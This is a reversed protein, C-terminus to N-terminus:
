GEEEAEDPQPSSAALDPDLAALDDELLIPEGDEHQVYVEPCARVLQAISGQLTAESITDQFGVIAELTPELAEGYVPYVTLTAGSAADITLLLERRDRELELELAVADNEYSFSAVGLDVKATGTWGAATLVGRIVEADERHTTV